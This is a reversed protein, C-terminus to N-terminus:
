SPPEEALIGEIGRRVQPLDSQVVTWIVNLDIERYNHILVDRLGAMSRWAVEPHRVRIDMSLNKTAERMILLQYIVSGHWQREAFFRDRGVAAFEEVQATADLIHQPYVRDGSM